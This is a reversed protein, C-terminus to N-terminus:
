IKFFLRLLWAQRQPVVLPGSRGWDGGEPPLTAFGSLITKVFDLHLYNAAMLPAAQRFLPRLNAALFIQSLPYKL